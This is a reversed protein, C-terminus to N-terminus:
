LREEDWELITTMAMLVVQVVVSWWGVMALLTLGGRCWGVGGWWHWFEGGDGFGDTSGSIFFVRFM